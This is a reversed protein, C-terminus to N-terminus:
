GSRRKNGKRPVQKSKGVTGGNAKATAKPAPAAQQAGEQVEEEGDDDKEEYAIPKSLDVLTETVEKELEKEIDHQHELYVLRPAVKSPLALLKQRLTLLINEWSKFVSQADLSEKRERSLRLEALHAEARTKRLREIALEDQGRNQQERFYGFMGQLTATFQYEGKIPPPFHGDDALQRHRRDSLGTLTCLEEGSIKQVEAM